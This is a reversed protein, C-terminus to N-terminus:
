GSLKELKEKIEEMMKELRAQEREEKQIGRQLPSIEREVEDKLWLTVLVSTSTIFLLPGSIMLFIGCIRGIMTHPIVDGYGITTITAIGWWLSDFYNKITPNTNREVFYVITTLTFLVTNGIITIYLFAPNFFFRTLKKTENKFFSFM